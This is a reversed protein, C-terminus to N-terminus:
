RASKMLRRRSPKEVIELVAGGAIPGAVVQRGGAPWQVEISAAHDASALGFYLPLDSQSLYGSKGDMVKLTRRGDAHVVTVQAGLGQRNSTVGRLRVKIAHLRGKAALNSRLLQPAANFENTVIDLDGDNDVDLVVSSRSGRSAWMTLTGAADRRCGAAAANAQACVECARSGRDAGTGGCELVFTRGDPLWREEIEEGAGM